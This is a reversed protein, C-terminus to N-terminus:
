KPMVMIECRVNPSLARIRMKSADVPRIPITHGKPIVMHATVGDFSVEIAQLAEEEVAPSQPNLNAERNKNQIIVTGVLEKLWGYDIEQWETSVPFKRRYPEEGATAFVESVVSQISIPEEGAQEYYFNTTATYRDFALPTSNPPVPVAGLEEALTKSQKAM